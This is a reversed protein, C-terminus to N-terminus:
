TDYLTRVKNEAIWCAAAVPVYAVQRKRMKGWDGSLITNTILLNNNNQDIYSATPKKKWIYWIFHTFIKISEQM